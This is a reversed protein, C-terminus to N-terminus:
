TLLAVSDHSLGLIGQYRSPRLVRAIDHAEKGNEAGLHTLVAWARAEPPIGRLGGEPSLLLRAVTEGTVVAAVSQCTLLAALEARHCVDGLPCGLAHLGAVSLFVTTCEPVAPEHEAPAKIAAHRAGDAEIVVVDALERFAAIAATTVGEFKDARRTRGVVTVHQHEDLEAAIAATPNATDNTILLRPSQTATPRQIATTTTSIVRFGQARLEKCIRYMTTTKGGAGVISLVDGSRLDITSSIGCNEGM